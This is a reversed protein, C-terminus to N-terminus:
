NIGGEFWMRGEGDERCCSCLKYGVGDCRICLEEKKVKLGRRRTLIYNGSELTKKLQKEQKFDTLILLKGALSTRIIKERIDKNVENINNKWESNTKATIYHNICEPTLGLTLEKWNTM